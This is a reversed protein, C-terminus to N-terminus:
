AAEKMRARLKAKYRRQHEREREPNAHRWARRKENECPKCLSALFLRDNRKKRSNFADVSKLVDCRACRKTARAREVVLTHGDWWEVNRFSPRARALRDLRARMYERLERSPTFMAPTM